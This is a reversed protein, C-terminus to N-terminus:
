KIINNREFWFEFVLDAFIEDLQMKIRIRVWYNPYSCALTDQNFIDNEYFNIYCFYLSSLTIDYQQKILSLEKGSNYVINFDYFFNTKDSNYFSIFSDFRYFHSTLDDGKDVISQTNYMLEESYYTVYNM